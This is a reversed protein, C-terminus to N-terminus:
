FARFVANILTFVHNCLQCGVLVTVGFGTFQFGSIVDDFLQFSGFAVNNIDSGM